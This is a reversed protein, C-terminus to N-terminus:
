TRNIATTNSLGQRTNYPQKNYVTYSKFSNCVITVQVAVFFTYKQNLSGIDVNHVFEFPNYRILLVTGILGLLKRPKLNTEDSKQMRNRNEKFMCLNCSSVLTSCTVMFISMLFVIQSKFFKTCELRVQLMFFSINYYIWKM